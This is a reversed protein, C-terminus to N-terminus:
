ETNGDNSGSVPQVVVRCTSCEAFTKSAGGTPIYQALLRNAGIAQECQPCTGLSSAPRDAGM